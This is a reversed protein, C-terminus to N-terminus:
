PMLADYPSSFHPIAGALNQFLDIMQWGAAIMCALILMTAVPTPLDQTKKM